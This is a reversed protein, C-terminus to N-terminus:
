RACSIVLDTAGTDKLAKMLRANSPHGLQDHYKKVQKITADAHKKRLAKLLDLNYDPDTADVTLVQEDDFSLIEAIAKAM